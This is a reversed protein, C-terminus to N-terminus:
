FISKEEILWYDLCLVFSLPYVVTISTLTIIQNTRCFPKPIGPFIRNQRETEKESRFWILFDMSLYFFSMSYFIQKFCNTDPKDDTKNKAYKVHEM